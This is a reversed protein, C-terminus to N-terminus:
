LSLYFVLVFRKPRHFHKSHKTPILYSRSYIAPGENMFFTFGSTLRTSQNSIEFTKNFIRWQLRGPRIGGFSQPFNSSPARIIKKVTSKKLITVIQRSNASM